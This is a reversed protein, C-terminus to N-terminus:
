DDNTDNFIISFRHLFIFPNITQPRATQLFYPTISVKTNTGDITDSAGADTLMPVPFVCTQCAIRSTTFSFCHQM